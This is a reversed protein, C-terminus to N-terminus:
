SEHCPIVLTFTSGQGPESALKVAGGHAEAVAKVLALGIGIGRVGSRQADAGRVFREFLRGQEERPIGNGHDEVSIQVSDGSRRAAVHIATGPPSYKGANELLNAVARGLADRDAQIPPLNDETKCLVEHDQFQGNRRFEEVAGQVLEGADAPELRWAYAGAQIRGFSLLGEVLRHLRETERGLIEYYQQRRQEGIPARTVLLETLHRMSTLPTRFEHSVAAVFESQQRALAMERSTARYLGYSAALTLLFALALVSELVRRRFSYADGAAGGAPAVSLLFPLHTEGPTLLVGGDQKAELLPQGDVDQLGVTLHKAKWLPSLAGDLETPTALWVAAGNWVALVPLQGERAVRHGSPALDGARWQRWLALAAETRAVAAPDPPQAGWQTVLDRYLQFTARDIQWGGAYLARALDSAERALADRDSAEEWMRCRAQRAILDAPQGDVLTRGLVELRTYADLAGARDSLKRLTRGLAVLAAARTRLDSSEAQQRYEQAAGALDKLRYERSEAEAFSVAGQQRAEPQYLVSGEIGAPTFEVGRMGELRREMALALRGAAVQLGERVRQKDLDREQQLVRVGLWALAGIPLMTAIVLLM